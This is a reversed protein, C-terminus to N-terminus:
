TPSNYFNNKRYEKIIRKERQARKSRITDTLAQIGTANPLGNFRYQGQKLEARQEKLTTIKPDLPM